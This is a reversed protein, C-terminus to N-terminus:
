PKLYLKVREVLEQPTHNTKILYEKVGLREAEEKTEPVDYNSFAIVPVSSIEPEKRLKALFCIGNEKPLLIDLLILDPKEKKAIELGEESEFAVVVEYGSQTFKDSYMEALLREDEIILIKAM